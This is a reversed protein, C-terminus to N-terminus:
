ALRPPPVDPRQFIAQWICVLSTSWWLPPSSDRPAEIPAPPPLIAGVTLWHISLGQCKQAHIGLVWDFGGEADEREPKAALQAASTPEDRSCCRRAVQGREASCCSAHNKDSAHCCSAPERDEDEEGAAAVVYDPPTVGHKAAWALKEQMSMCCCSRWCQDASNCGCHRHQCPFPRGGAVGKPAQPMPFGITLALHAVVCVGVLSLRLPPLYRTPIFKPHM